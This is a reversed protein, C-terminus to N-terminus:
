ADGPRSVSQRASAADGRAAALPGGCGRRPDGLSDIKLCSYAGCVPSTVSGIRFGYRIPVLPEHVPWSEGGLLSMPGYLRAVRLRGSPPDGEDVLPITCAFKELIEARAARLCVCLCIERFNGRAARMPLNQILNPSIRTGGLSSGIPLM